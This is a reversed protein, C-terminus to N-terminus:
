HPIISSAKNSVQEPFMSPSEPAKRLQQLITERREKLDVDAEKLTSHAHIKAWEIKKKSSYTTNCRAVVRQLIDKASAVQAPEGWLYIVQRITLWLRVNSNSTGSVQQPYSPPKVFAGTKRCIDEFVEYQGQSM